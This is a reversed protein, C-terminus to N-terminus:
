KEALAERGKALNAKGIEIQKDTLKKKPKQLLKDEPHSFCGLRGRSPEPECLTKEDKPNNVEIDEIM